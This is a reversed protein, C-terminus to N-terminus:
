YIKFLLVNISNSTCYYDYINYNIIGVIILKTMRAQMM